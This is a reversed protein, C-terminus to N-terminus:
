LNGLKKYVYFDRDRFVLIYYPDQSVQRLIELSKEDTKALIVVVDAVDVGNPIVYIKERQSLHAGLNNSASVSKEKPIGSLTEEIVERNGLPETFM